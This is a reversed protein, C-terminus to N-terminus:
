TKTSSASPGRVIFRDGLHHLHVPSPFTEYAKRSVDAAMAADIDPNITSITAAFTLSWDASPRCTRGGVIVGTAADFFVVCFSLAPNTADRVAAISLMAADPDTDLALSYPADYALVTEGAIQALLTFFPMGSLMTVGFQLDGEELAKIEEATPGPAGLLLLVTMDIGTSRLMADISAVMGGGFGHPLPFPIDMGAALQPNNIPM